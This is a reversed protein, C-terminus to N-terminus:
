KFAGEATSADFIDQVIDARITASAKAKPGDPRPEVPFVAIVEAGIGGARFDPMARHIRTKVGFEGFCDSGDRGLQSLLSAVTM